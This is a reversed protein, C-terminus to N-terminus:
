KNVLKELMVIRTELQHMITRPYDSASDGLKNVLVFLEISLFFIFFLIWVFFSIPSSLLLTFLVKLEDLFGLKSSVELELQKQANLKANEKISKQEHLSKIQHDIQPIIDIKPNPMSMNEINKQQPVMKGTVADKEKITVIKYSNITPQKSIENITNLRENEKLEIEKNLADIQRTLEKTKNPLLTNIENQDSAIKAKEIDEKFIIQDIIVSGIIAMVIAILTRFGFLFWNKGMALIILREIQIVMIIMILSALFPMIGQAHFYRQTFLYAIFGWLTGILLLASLYRKVSKATAETSNRVIGYNYGTLFCGVKLWLNKM